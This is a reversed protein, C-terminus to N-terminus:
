NSKGNSSVGTPLLLELATNETFPEVLSDIRKAIKKKVRKKRTRKFLNYLRQFEKDDMRIFYASVKGSSLYGM